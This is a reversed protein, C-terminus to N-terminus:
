KKEFTGLLYGGIPNTLEITYAGADMHTLDIVILATELAPYTYEHMEGNEGTIRVTLDSSTRVCQIILMDGEKDVLVPQEVVASRLGKDDWDGNLPVKEAKALQMTIFFSVIVILAGSLKKM